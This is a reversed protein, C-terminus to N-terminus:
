CIVIYISDLSQLGLIGFVSLRAPTEIRFDWSQANGLSPIKSNLFLGM